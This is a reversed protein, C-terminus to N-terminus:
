LKYKIDQLINILLHEPTNERYFKRFYRVAFKFVIYLGMFILINVAVIYYPFNFEDKSVEGVSYAIFSTVVLEPLKKLETFITNKEPNSQNQRKTSDNILFIVIKSAREKYKKKLHNIMKNSVMSELDKKNTQLSKKEVSLFYGIFISIILSIEGLEILPCILSKLSHFYERFFLVLILSYCSIFFLGLWIKYRKDWYLINPYSDKMNRHYEDKCSKMVQLLEEMVEDYM